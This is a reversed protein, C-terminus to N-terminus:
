FKEVPEYPILWLYVRCQMQKMEIELCSDSHGSLHMYIVPIQGSMGQCVTLIHAPSFVIKQM